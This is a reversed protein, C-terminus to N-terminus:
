CFGIPQGNVYLPPIRRNLKNEIKIGCSNSLSVQGDIYRILPRRPNEDLIYFVGDGSMPNDVESSAVKQPSAITSLSEVIPPSLSEAQESQATHCSQSLCALTLSAAAVQLLKISTM